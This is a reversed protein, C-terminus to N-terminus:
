KGLYRYLFTVIQARTCPNAPAFTTASTGATIGENAAWLVAEAFYDSAAVDTFPNATTAAPKGAARWLFTVTQGRTVTADPAFTTARTGATIGKEVAWLVAKYYYQDAKVDTFTNATTTPEPSGMYRWIFTVMQARTCSANPAFTTATTGSTVGKDVAWKVADYYYANAAVDTFPLGATGNATWKAYVTTNATIKVSTVKTTLAADSYWGAFDFGVKTPKYTTLDITTGSAKSVTSIASGGNTDFTLTFTSTAGGGGGGNGNGSSAVTATGTAVTATSAGNQQDPISVKLTEGRTLTGTTITGSYSGNNDTTMNFLAMLTDGQVISCMAYTTNANLGSATVTAYTQGSTGSVSITPTTDVAYATGLMAFCLVVCLLAATIRKKM